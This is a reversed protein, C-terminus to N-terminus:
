RRPNLLPEVTGSNIGHIGNHVDGIQHHEFLSLWQVGEIRFGQFGKGTLRHISGTESNPWCLILFGEDTEVILREAKIGSDLDNSAM